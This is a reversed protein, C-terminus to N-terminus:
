KYALYLFSWRTPASPDNPDSLKMAATLGGLSDKLAANPSLSNAAAYRINANSLSSTAVALPLFTVTRESLDNPDTLM